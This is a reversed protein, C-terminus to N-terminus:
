NIYHQSFQEYNIEFIKVHENFGYEASDFQKVLYPYKEEKNYVDDLFDSSRGDLVLHTLDNNMGYNLYDTLTSFSKSDIVKPIFKLSDVQQMPFEHGILAASRYYKVIHTLDNTGKATLVVSQAIKYRELDRQHEFPNLTILLVILGIVVIFGLVILFLKEHKTRQIIKELGLVTVISILPVLVFLYRIEQIGRGYAYLPSAALFVTIMIISKKKFNLKTFFVIIGLPLFWIYNPITFWVSYKLFQTIASLTFDNFSKANNGDVITTNYVFDSAAGVHSVLGDKGTTQIRLYAMPLVMLAFISLVLLYRFIVKDKSRFKTFFVISFPILLLLGEYRVLSSLAIAAFSCYVSKSSNSLLLSISATILFLFVADTIGLLSNEIIRPEFTFLVLGFLAYYPKVFKRLLTYLPIITLVSIIVTLLRQLNMYDLFNDSNVLAFFGALFTPWGNNPFNYGSPLHWLISTDIAYWFYGTGDLSIPLNSPLYYLRVLLGSLGIMIVFLISRNFFSPEGEILPSVKNERPEENM